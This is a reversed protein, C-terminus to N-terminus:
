RPTNLRASCRTKCAMKLAMASPPPLHTAVTALSARLEFVLLDVVRLAIVRATSIPRLVRDKKRQRAKRRKLRRSIENDQVVASESTEVFSWYGVDRAESQELPERRLDNGSLEMLDFAYLFVSTDYRWYRTRDFNPRGNDDCCV